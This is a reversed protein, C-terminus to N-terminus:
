GNNWTMADRTEKGKFPRVHVLQQIAAIEVGTSNELHGLLGQAVLHWSYIDDHTHPITIIKNDSTDLEYRAFEDSVAVM